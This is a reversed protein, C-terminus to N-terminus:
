RPKLLTTLPRTSIPDVSNPAVAAISPSKLLSPMHSQVSILMSVATVAAMDFSGFKSKVPSLRTFLKSM